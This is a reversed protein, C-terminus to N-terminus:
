LSTLVARRGGQLARRPLSFGLRTASPTLRRKGVVNFGRSSSARAWQIREPSAVCSESQSRRRQTAPPLSPVSSDSAQGPGLTGTNGLRLGGFGLFAPGPKRPHAVHADGLTRHEPGLSPRSGQQRWGSTGFLEQVLAENENRVHGWLNCLEDQTFIPPARALLAM